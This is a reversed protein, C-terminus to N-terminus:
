PHRVNQVVEESLASLIVLVIPNLSHKFKDTQNHMDVPWLKSTWMISNKLHSVWFVKCPKIFGLQGHLMRFQCFVDNKAEPSVMDTILCPHLGGVFGALVCGSTTTPMWGLNWGKRLLRLAQGIIIGLSNKSIGMEGMLLLVVESPPPVSDKSANLLPQFVEGLAHFIGGQTVHTLQQSELKFSMDAIKEDLFLQLMNQVFPNEPIFNQCFDGVEPKIRVKVTLTGNNLYSTTM